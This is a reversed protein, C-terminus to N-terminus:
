GTTSLTVSSVYLPKTPDTVALRLDASLNQLEAFQADTLTVTATQWSGTGSGAVTPGGFYPAGPSDYQVQFGQGAVSWYTIKATVTSAKAVASSPDLQLYINAPTVGSQSSTWTEYATQGDQTVQTLNGDAGQGTAGVSLFILGGGSQGATGTISTAGGGAAPCTAPVPTGAPAAGPLMSWQDLQASQMAVPVCVSGDSLAKQAPVKGTLADVIHYSGKVLNLGDPHLTVSGTYGFNSNVEGLTIAASRHDFATAPVVQLAHQSTLDAYAPAYQPLQSGNSLVTGGAKQYAAINADSGNMPLVARYHSLSDAHNAIEESTVVAFGAQYGDWLATINNEVNNLSGGSDNGRAQSYDVYVAVPQTPYSGSIKQLVPLWSTYIPYGIVDKDTGDHIFFDEGGGTPLTMAYSSLWDAAEAPIQDDTGFVTWEQAVPVHYARGLSGFLLSLGASNAADEVVTAHYKRALEFFIDPLNGLQPANSIHGGFYYFLPGDSVKRVAATLRDYTDQVSWQRFAQYVSDLPAGPLAAPVQSFSTYTTKYKTNFANITKYTAPLWHTQFYAIDAPAWGGVGPSDLWQADLHGYDMFSGGYGPSHTIHAVTQTVYTFYDNQETQDWWALAVGTAGTSTVEHDTEFTAPSGRWGSQWFIPVLKVGAATANALEQDLESFDFTGRAPELQSWPMNLEARDIGKAKIAAFDATSWPTGNNDFQFQSAWYDSGGGQRADASQVAPAAAAHAAAPHAPAPSATAYQALVVSAALGCILPVAGRRVTRLM